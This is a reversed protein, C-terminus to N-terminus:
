LMRRFANQVKESVSDKRPQTYIATSNINKHGLHHQIYRTDIGKEALLFGCSHRLCHPHRYEAPISAKECIRDFLYYIQTRDIAQAAGNGDTRQSLFLADSQAAGAYEAREKLWVGLIYNEKWGNLSMLDQRGDNGNKKRRISITKADVDVDSVRLSILESVRLGHIVATLFMAIERTGFEREAVTLFAELQQISFSPHDSASYKRTHQACKQVVAGDASRVCKACQRKPSQEQRTDIGVVKAAATATAM